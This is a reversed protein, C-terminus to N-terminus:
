STFTLVLQHLWPGHCHVPCVVTTWSYINSHSRDEIMLTVSINICPSVLAGVVATIFSWSDKAKLIYM